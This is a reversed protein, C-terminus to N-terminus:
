LIADITAIIEQFVQLAYESYWFLSYWSVFDRATISLLYIPQYGRSTPPKKANQQTKTTVSKASTSSKQSRHTVSEQCFIFMQNGSNLLISLLDEKLAKVTNTLLFRSQFLRLLCKHYAIQFTLRAVISGSDQM